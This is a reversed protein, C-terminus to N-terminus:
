KLSEFIKPRSEGVATIMGIAGKDIRFISHDVLLYDGPVDITFEVITTGASPVLTTQVNRNVVGNVSGELYVRDFIEGIIHFSSIGNPGINGFFIRVKEGVNVKLANEGLLAGQRGNFVVYDPQEKLGKELSLELLYKKEPAPSDLPEDEQVLNQIYEIARAAAKEDSSSISFVGDGDYDILAGTKDIIDRIIKGGPGIVDPVKVKPVTIQFIRLSNSSKESFINVLSDMFGEDKKEKEVFAGSANEESDAEIKGQKNKPKFPKLKPASLDEDDSVQTFFESEFVYFEHDVRPFGHKPEVLLLGYMGNAIHAPISPIPSACHYVYLGPHLTKFQFVREEGPAVLSVSAGGGPGNIAHLDINHPFKSSSHNSLHFEVTDGLRVRIMPGPVTGNFSWFKYRKGDALDGVFEKAEFHVKVTEPMTRKIFAPVEPATTIEAELAYVPISVFIYLIIWNAVSKM